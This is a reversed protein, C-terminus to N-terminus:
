ALDQDSRAHQGLIAQLLREVLLLAPAPLEAAVQHLQPQDGLLGQDAGQAGLVLEGRHGELRGLQAYLGPAHHRARDALLEVQDAEAGVMM